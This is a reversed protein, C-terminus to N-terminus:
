RLWPHERTNPNPHQKGRPDRPGPRHAPCPRSLGESPQIASAPLIAAAPPACTGARNTITQLRHPRTLGTAGEGVEPPRTDIRAARREQVPVGSAVPPPAAIPRGSRGVKGTTLRQGGADLAAECTQPCRRASRPGPARRRTRSPSARPTCSSASSGSCPGATGYEPDGAVPHGIALLHARIQHTRGTELRVRLLTSTPLAREVEFHTVAARPTTPTSRCARAGAGTAASRRTSRGRQAGAAARARARPVRARMAGTACPRACRATRRRPARWSSCGRPTVTWATCSGRASPIRRRGGVAPASCSCSRARATGARRTCSWGRRAQRRGAPARRPLPDSSPRRHLRLRARPRAARGGGGDRRGAAPTAQASRAMSACGGAELLRQARARSGLPGALFADLRLGAAEPPVRIETM